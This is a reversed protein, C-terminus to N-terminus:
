VPLKVRGARPDDKHTLTLNERIFVIVINRIAMSGYCLYLIRSTDINEYIYINTTMIPDKAAVMTTMYAASAGSIEDEFSHFVIFCFFM